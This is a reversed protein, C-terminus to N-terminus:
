MNNYLPVIRTHYFLPPPTGFLLISTAVAAALLGYRRGFRPKM